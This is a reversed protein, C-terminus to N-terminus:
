TIAYVIYDFYFKEDFDDYYKTRQFVFKIGTENTHSFYEKEGNQTFDLRSGNSFLIYGSHKETVTRREQNEDIAAIREIAKICREDNWRFVSGALVTKNSALIEIFTKRTIKEM